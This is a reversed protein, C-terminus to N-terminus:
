IGASLAALVARSVWAASDEAWEKDLMYSAIRASTFDALVQTPNAAAIAAGLTQPGIIGDVHVRLARQLCKVATRTGQNVASDLVPLVLFGPLQTGRVAGLYQPGMYIAAATAPTMNEIEEETLEPHSAQSIGYRSVGDTSERVDSGERQLIWAVAAAPTM